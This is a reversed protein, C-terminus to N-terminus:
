ARGELDAHEDCLTLLWGDDRLAGPGGCRECTVGSRREARSVAEDAAEGLVPDDTEYSLYARLTGFKEKIQDIRYDPDVLVMEDHLEQLLPWWGRLAGRDGWEPNEIRLQREREIWEDIQM